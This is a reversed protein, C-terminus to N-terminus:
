KCATIQLDCPPSEALSFSSVNADFSLLQQVSTSGCSTCIILALQPLENGQKWAMSSKKIILYRPYKWSNSSPEDSYRNSNALGKSSTQELHNQVRRKRQGIVNGVNKLGGCCVEEKATSLVRLYVPFQILHASAWPDNAHGSIQQRAFKVHRILQRIRINERLIQLFDLFGSWPLFLLPSWLILNWYQFTLMGTILKNKLLIEFWTRKGEGREDRQTRLASQWWYRVLCFSLKCSVKERRTCPGWIQFSM